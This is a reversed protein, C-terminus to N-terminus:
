RRSATRPGSSRSRDSTAEVSSKPIPVFECDETQVDVSAAGATDTETIECAEATYAVLFETGGGSPFTVDDM